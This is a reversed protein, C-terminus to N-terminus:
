ASELGRVDGLESRAGVGNGDDIRRGERRLRRGAARVAGVLGGPMALISLVIVAGYVVQYGNDSILDRAQEEVMRLAVAGVLPGISSDVGGFIAIALPIISWNLTFVDTPVMYGYLGSFCAGAM